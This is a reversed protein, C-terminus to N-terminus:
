DNALATVTRGDADIRVARWWDGDFTAPPVYESRGAGDPGDFLVTIRADSTSFAGDKSYRHVMVDYAGCNDIYVVEPGGGTTVDREYRLGPASTRQYSVGSEPAGAPIVHLDLDSPRDGWTLRVEVPPASTAVPMGDLASGLSVAVARRFRDVTEPFGPNLNAFAASRGLASPDLDARVKASVPGHNALYVAANPCAYAYDMLADIFERTSSRLHQKAEVVLLDSGPDSIPPRRIRYDPQIGTTRHGSPLDDHATRLETWWFVIRGTRDSLTALHVGRFAFELRGEQVHFQFRWGADDLAIFMQAGLWVAYVEHRHRWVPLDLVDELVKRRELAQTEVDPLIRDIEEMMTALAAEDGHRVDGRRRTLWFAVDRHWFDSELIWLEYLSFGTADREDRDKSTGTRRLADRDQGHRRYATIFGNALAVVRGLRRDVDERGTAWDEPWPAFSRGAEYSEVWAALGPTLGDPDAGWAGGEAEGAQPIAWLDNLAVPTAAPTAVAEVREMQARFEELLLDLPASDSDFNFRVALSDGSGQAGAASLLTLIDVKMQAFPKLTAFLARILDEASLDSAVLLTGLDAAEGPFLRDRLDTVLDQDYAARRGSGAGTLGARAVLQPWLDAATELLVTAPM